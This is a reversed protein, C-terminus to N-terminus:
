CDLVACTISGYRRVRLLHRCSRGQSDVARARNQEIVIREAITEAEDRDINVPLASVPFKLNGSLVRGSEDLLFKSFLESDVGDIVSHYEIKRGGSSLDLDRVVLEGIIDVRGLENLLEVM